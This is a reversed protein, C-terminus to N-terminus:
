DAHTRPEMPPELADPTPSAAALSESSVVSRERGVVYLAAGVAILLLTLGVIKLVALTPNAEGQSPLVSLGIALTTTTLGVTAALLAIRKGGPVRIVDPGVPERQVKIMTAFMFLYPIFYAIITMSVLVDYAGQVSTGVQSLFIFAAAVSAYVLLAVHPTGWRPHLRAFAAPLRRDVGAVFPLRGCAAFWAGAQGIGSITILVATVSAVGGFGLRDGAKTIAQMIGQMDLVVGRPLAVLVSVTALIYMCTIVPGAILLARPINRRADRIEEGMMSASEVGSLSFAITSWFVIDKLQTSPVLSTGTFETASGLRAWALGGLVLLILTPLWLGLAGANHLWKGADL